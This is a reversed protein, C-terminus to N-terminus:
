IELCRVVEDIIENLLRKTDTEYANQISSENEIGTNSYFKYFYERLYETFRQADSYARLSIVIRSM